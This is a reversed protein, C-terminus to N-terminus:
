AGATGGAPTRNYVDELRVIDDEGLYNGTQVEILITPEQGRNALRHVAGLPVYVSEGPSLTRVNGDITVEPKGGVVVWHEARHAHKQLSLVGGPKVVIRKVQYSDDLDLREYNGWPRFIQLGEVAEARSQRQLEAVLPKVDEARSKPAVLLCDRTSVVVMGQVGILATLRGQSQVFNDASDVIAADGVIANGQADRAVIQAVADWSGVDSWRYHVPLVAARETREMVAYDVSISTARTFSPGLRLFDLDPEAEDLSSRVTEVVNPQLKELEQLFTAAGFLFNGSNWFYGAEVYQRAVAEVPKEVFAEVRKCVGAVPGGPQIYGYATAPRDPQVGFTVLFGAEAAEIATAVADRFAIGDPINHDAALALVLADPSRKMAQLCGAAIAACSNRAAPELMIDAKVGIELLDEALLFRHDNSGVIIPAPDFVDGRCRLVTEQFLSRERGFTLFQKPKSARSLPWLRTGSGGSLILPVVTVPEVLEKKSRSSM